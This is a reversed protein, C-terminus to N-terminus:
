RARRADASACGCPARPSRTSSRSSMPRRAAIVRLIEATATQQELAESLERNRAQVEEFLRANEIAIVAQDAFTKLLEIQRDTFPRVEQPRSGRRRDAQGGAAAARRARTRYHGLQEGPELTYDPDATSTRSRSSGAKSCRGAPSRGADPDVPDTRSTNARVRALLRLLRAASSHEGDYRSHHRRMDAECLRAAIEAIRRWCRSSTPRRAASRRCCRPPRPRSSWRRTLERNRAQVEEFLRVNEIAIVAQDAFTTVLETQRETFPRPGSKDDGHRRHLKGGPAASCWADSPLWRTKPGRAM